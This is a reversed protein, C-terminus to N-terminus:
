QSKGRTPFQKRWTVLHNVKGGEEVIQEFMVMEALGVMGNLLAVRGRCEVNRKGAKHKDM